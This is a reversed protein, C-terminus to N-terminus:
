SMLKMLMFGYFYLYVQKDTTVLRYDNLTGGVAGHSQNHEMLLPRDVRFATASQLQETVESDMPQKRIQNVKKSAKLFIIQM